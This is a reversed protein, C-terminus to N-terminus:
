EQGTLARAVEAREAETLPTGARASTPRRRLYIAAIIAGPVLILLPGLWLLWTEPKFPPQLLVWDGFRQVMYDLAEADSDGAAIRERLVERLDRALPANSESIAQNQCVLCRLEHMLERARAEQEPDALPKETFIAFAPLAAFTLAIALFLGRM